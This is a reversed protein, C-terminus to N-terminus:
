LKSLDLVIESAKGPNAGTARKGQIILTMYGQEKLQAGMQKLASLMEKPGIKNTLSGAAMPYIAADTLTLTTGNTTANAMIGIAGKSTSVEHLIEGSVANTVSPLASSGHPSLVANALNQAAGPNGRVWNMAAAGLARWGSPGAMIALSAAAGMATGKAIQNSQEIAEARTCGPCRWAVPEGLGNGDMRGDPDIRNLPNNVVYSYRNWRQPEPLTRKLDLVPDVSLFRGMYPAYFRAHMYDLSEADREHGTFQKKERMIATTSTSTPAIEVGFPHYDHRSLEVGGNGTILRPTGLHDLHFHLTKGADPVEAALMQTGRYIYDEQWKWEGNTERSFRRLVQGGPDRITWDSRTGASSVEV